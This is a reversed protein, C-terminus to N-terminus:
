LWYDRPEHHHPCGFWHAVSTLHTPNIRSHFAHAAKKPFTAQSKVAPAFDFRFLMFALISCLSSVLLRVTRVANTASIHARGALWAASLFGLMRTIQPSSIPHDLM